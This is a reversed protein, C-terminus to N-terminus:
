PGATAPRRAGGAESASGLSPAEFGSGTAEPELAASLVEGMDNAFVFEV